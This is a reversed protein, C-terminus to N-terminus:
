RGKKEDYYPLLATIHIVMKKLQEPDDKYVNRVNSLSDILIFQSEKYEGSLKLFTQSDLKIFSEGAEYNQNISLFQFGKAKKFQSYIQTANEGNTNLEVLTCKNKFNVRLSDQSMLEYTLPTKNKLESMIEKRFAVGRKLYLYSIMPFIVFFM